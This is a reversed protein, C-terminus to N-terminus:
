YILYKITYGIIFDLNFSVRENCSEVLITKDDIIPRNTTKINIERNGSLYIKVKYFETKSCYSCNFSKPRM